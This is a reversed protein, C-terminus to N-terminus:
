EEYKTSSLLVVFKEQKLTFLHCHLIYSMKNLYVVNAKSGSQNTREQTLEEACAKLCSQM